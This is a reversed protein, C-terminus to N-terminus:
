GHRDVVNQPNASMLEISAAARKGASRKAHWVLACTFLVPPVVVFTITTWTAAAPWPDGKLLGMVLQIPNWSYTTGTPTLAAGAHIGLYAVGVLLLAALAVQWKARAIPDNM